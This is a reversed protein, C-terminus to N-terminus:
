GLFINKVCIGPLYLYIKPPDVGYSEQCESSNRSVQFECALTKFHSIVRNVVMTEFSQLYNNKLCHVGNM